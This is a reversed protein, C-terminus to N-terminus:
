TYEGLLLQFIDIKTVECSVMSGVSVNNHMTTPLVLCFYAFRSCPNLTLGGNGDSVCQKADGM